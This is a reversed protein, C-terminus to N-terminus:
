AKSRDEPSLCIYPDIQCPDSVFDWVGRLGRFKKVFKRLFGGNPKSDKGNCKSGPLCTPKGGKEDPKDPSGRVSESPDQPQHPSDKISKEWADIGTQRPDKPPLEGPIPRVPTVPPVQLGLPDVYVSPALRAYAFLGFGGILGIPDQSLYSGTVRDYYRHRNYHIDVGLGDAEYQGQFRIRQTCVGEGKSVGGWDDPEGMWLEVGRADTLRMPTGLHDTHYFYVEMKSFAKPPLLGSCWMPAADMGEPASEVLEGDARLIPVFRNLEYIITQIRGESIESSVRDGDWGFKTVKSEGTERTIKQTIRRGFADYCYQIFEASKGASEIRVGVMRHLGDYSLDFREGDSKVRLVVNGIADYQYSVDAVDLVRNDM